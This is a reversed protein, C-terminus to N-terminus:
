EATEPLGRRLAVVREVEDLLLPFAPETMSHDQGKLEVIRTDDHGAVKMMRMFYANEEYRGLLEKDRDGTILLIPPAVARVYYIPALEDIVPTEGPLGREERVTFHTITHGSMPILGAVDNADIDHAELWRKDMTLMSSLYGGASHGSLFILLPDGGYDAINNFIWAVAAAADEIYAPSKVKPSLRYNPSVVCAGRDVLADPLHKEGGRIGGAHFWVIVPLPAESEPCYVDLRARSNIYDNSDRIAQPYYPIDKELTTSNDSAACASFLLALVVFLYRM